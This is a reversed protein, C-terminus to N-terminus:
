LSSIITTLSALKNNIDSIFKSFSSFDNPFSKSFQEYVLKWKNYLKSDKRKLKNILDKMQNLKENAEKILDLLKDNAIKMEHQKEILQKMEETNLVENENISIGNKIIKGKANCEANVQLIGNSDINMSIALKIDKKPLPPFGSITFTGLSTHTQKKFDVKKGEGQLINIKLIEDYDNFPLYHHTAEQPLPESSFIYTQFEDRGSLVGISTPQRDIFQMFGEKIESVSNDVIEGKVIKNCIIAAGIAIAEDPQVPFNIPIRGDFFDRVTTQVFPIYSSGGIMIINEIDDPEMKAQSLAREIPPILREEIDSCIFELTARNIKEILDQNKFLNPIVIQTENSSSLTKKANECYIKLLANVQANNDIDLKTKQKFRRKMENTLANDIDDGGLNTDGGVGLVEIKPGAIRLISVDLTGGGFDYVLCVGDKLQNKYQFAIAAATPENVFRICNLGAIEAALQTAKRQLNNFFAPVAIVVKTPPKGTKLKALVQTERLILASVEEPEFLKEKGNIDVSYVPKNNEGAVLKFACNKIIQQVQPDSIKRGLLRKSNYLVREPHYKLQNKACEGVPYSGDDMISVFSPTIRSGNERSELISYEYGSKSKLSAAVCTNTTGLDIGCYVNNDEDM